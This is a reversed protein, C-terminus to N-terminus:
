LRLYRKFAKIRAKQLNWQDVVKWINNFQNPAQLNFTNLNPSIKKFPKQIFAKKTRQIDLLNIYKYEFDLLGEELAQFCNWVDGLRVM